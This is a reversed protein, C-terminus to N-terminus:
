LADGHLVRIIQDRAQQLGLGLAETGVEHLLGLLLHETGVYRHGLGAAEHRAVETLRILDASM